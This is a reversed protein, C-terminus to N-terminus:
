IKFLLFLFFLYGLFMFFGERRTIVYKTKMVMFLLMSFILLVPFEFGLITPEINIPRILTVIGLVFLINFINSGVINGVSISSVKKSAATISAALEPLSTGIAFVSIGIFWPSIGFIRALSVGGRVMLDAGVIIGILSLLGIMFIFGASKDKKLIKKFKFDKIEDDFERTRKAGRYSIICFAIFAAIFIIGDFRSLVLDLSLLYLLGTAALMIPVERKFISKNVTLPRILACVGLILGMNAINSGVVNGLAIQKAGRIAAMIGVSAEPASTGFAVFVLGIFLPTLKLLYSFKVCSQILWDSSLILLILGIILLLLSIIIQPM